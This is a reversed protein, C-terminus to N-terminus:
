TKPPFLFAVWLDDTLRFNDARFRASGRSLRELPMKWCFLALANGSEVILEFRAPVLTDQPPALLGVEVHRDGFDPSFGQSIAPDACFREEFYRAPPLPRDANGSGPDIAMAADVRHSITVRAGAALKIQWIHTEAGLGGMPPMTHSVELIDDTHTYNEVDYEILINDDRIFVRQGPMWFGRQAFLVPGATEIRLPMAVTNSVLAWALLILLPTRIPM